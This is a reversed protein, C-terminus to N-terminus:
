RRLVVVVIAGAEEMDLAAALFVSDELSVPDLEVAVVVVLIHISLPSASHEPNPVVVVFSWCCCCCRPPSDFHSKSMAAAEIEASEM